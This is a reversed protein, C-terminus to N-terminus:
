ILWKFDNIFSDPLSCVNGQQVHIKHKGHPSCSTSQFGSHRKWRELIIKSPFHRKRSHKEANSKEAARANKNSQQSLQARALPVTFGVSNEWPSELCAPEANDATCMGVTLGGWVRDRNKM